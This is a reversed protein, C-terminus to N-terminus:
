MREQWSRTSFAPAFVMASADPTCWPAGPTHHLSVMELFSVRACLCRCAPHLHSSLILTPQTRACCPLAGGLVFHARWEGGGPEVHVRGPGAQGGAGGQDSAGAGRLLACGLCCSALVSAEACTQWLMCLTARFHGGLRVQLRQYLICPFAGKDQFTYPGIGLYLPTVRVQGKLGVSLTRVGFTVDM